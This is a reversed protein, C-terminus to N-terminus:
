GFPRMGPDPDVILTPVETPRTGNPNDKIWSLAEESKLWDPAYVTCTFGPGPSARASQEGPTAVACTRAMLM